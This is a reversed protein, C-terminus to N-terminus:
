KSYRYIIYAIFLFMWIVWIVNIINFAKKLGKQEKKYNERSLKQKMNPLFLIIFPVVILNIYLILEDYRILGSPNAFFKFKFLVSITSLVILTISISGIFEGVKKSKKYSFSIGKLELFYLLLTLLSLGEIGFFLVHISIISTGCILNYFSYGMLSLITIIVSIKIARNMAYQNLEDDDMVLVIFFGAVILTVYATHVSLFVNGLNNM